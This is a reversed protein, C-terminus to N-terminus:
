FTGKGRFGAELSDIQAIAWAAGAPDLLEIDGSYLLWDGALNQSADENDAAVAGGRTMVAIETDVGADTKLAHVKAQVAYITGAAPLAFTTLAYTERENLADVYNYTTDTDSAAGDDVNTSSSAGGGKALGEAYTGAGDPYLTYIRRDPPIVPAAEGTTDDLYFDDVFGQNWVVGGAGCYGLVIRAVDANGTNGDFSIVNVGDQWVYIWGNAADVKVDICVNYWQSHAFTAASIEAVAAAHTGVYAALKNTATDDVGLWGIHAAGAATQWELLTSEVAPLGVSTYLWLGARFQRTATVTKEGRHDTLSIDFSYSGTHPTATIQLQDTYPNDFETSHIGRALEAGSMFLPTIAM